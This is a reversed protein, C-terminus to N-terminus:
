TKSRWRGSLARITLTLNREVHFMMRDPRRQELQIQLHAAGIGLPTFAVGAGIQVQGVHSRRTGALTVVHRHPYSRCGGGTGAAM